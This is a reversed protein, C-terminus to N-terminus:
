WTERLAEAGDSDDGKEGTQRTENRGTAPGGKVRSNDAGEGGAGDRVLRHVPLEETAPDLLWAAVSPDRLQCVASDALQPPLLALWRRCRHLVVTAAPRSLLATLWSLCAAAFPM